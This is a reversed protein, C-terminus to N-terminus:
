HVPYSTWPHTGNNHQSDQVPAHASIAADCLMAITSVKTVADDYSDATVNALDIALQDPLAQANQQPTSMTEVRNENFSSSFAFARSFRRRM